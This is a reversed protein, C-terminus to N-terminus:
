LVAEKVKQGIWTCIYAVNIFLCLPFNRQCRWQSFLFCLLLPTTKKREADPTAKDRRGLGEWDALMLDWRGYGREGRIYNVNQHRPTSFPSSVWESWTVRFAYFLLSSLAVDLLTLRLEYHICLEAAPLDFSWFIIFQYVFFILLCIFSLYGGLQPLTM